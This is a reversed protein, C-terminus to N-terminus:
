GELITDVCFDVNWLSKLVFYTRIKKVIKNLQAWVKNIKKKIVLKLLGELFFAFNQAFLLLELECDNLLWDLTDM